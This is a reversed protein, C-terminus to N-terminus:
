AILGPVVVVGVFTALLGSCCAAFGVLHWRDRRKEMNSKHYTVVGLLPLGTTHVLMHANNIIPSLLSILLALAGGAGLSAVLVGGKLLTKDPYSPQHPVFPPDIVRISFDGTNNQVDGSLRASERRELMQQHQRSIVAYDRDLQKLQAEVEPIQHVKANLEEVRREFEAVRVRVEAAQAQTEALMSRMGQYVPSNSIISLGDSSSDRLLEYEVAREAELEAILGRLRRIEPHKETYRSLLGDLQVQMGQIRTDLPSNIGSLSGGAIFVPDEGELQRHLELRRNELESLQLLAQQLNSRAQQLRSFYDGSEGPLVDVNNQKFAALRSEAEVLRRESEVLQEELFSQAGSSDQRKDSMSTEIFVTILAQALRRATQRDPHTVSIAYLSDNGRTGSLSIAKQLREILADKQDETTVKLDMDTMRALKEMNPRSLLTRSMLAIRENVNPTVTLGRMLPRLVTNSDVFVRASAVYSEPMRTVFAWGAIAIIWALGLAIWRYRWIGIIYSQLQAFVDQM